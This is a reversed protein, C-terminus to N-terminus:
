STLRRIRGALHAAAAGLRRVSESCRIQEHLCVLRGDSEDTDIALDYSVSLGRTTDGAYTAHVHVVAAGVHFALTTAAHELGGLVGGAVAALLLEVPAPADDRRESRTELELAVSTGRAECRDRTMRTAVIMYERM